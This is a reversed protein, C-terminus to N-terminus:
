EAQLTVALSGELELTLDVEILQGNSDVEVSRDLEIRLDGTLELAHVHGADLNWLMEGMAEIAVLTDCSTLEAFVEDGPLDELMKGMVDSVDCTAELEVDLELVAMRVGDVEREGSFTATAECFKVEGLTQELQSLFLPDLGVVTMELSFEDGGSELELASSGGPILLRVFAPGDVDWSDGKSVDKGPLFGLLDAEILLGELLDDKGGEGKVWEVEVQDEEGRTFVVAQGTLASEGDGQSTEEASFGTSEVALNGEVEHELEGFDRRLKTPKGGASVLYTDTFTQSREWSMNMDVVPDDEMGSFSIEVSTAELDAKHTFTKTVSVDAKPAFTITARTQPVFFLTASLLYLARM